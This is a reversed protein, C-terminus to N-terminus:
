HARSCENAWAWSIRHNKRLRFQMEYFASFTQMRVFHIANIHILIFWVVLVDCYYVCKRHKWPKISATLFAWVNFFMLFGSFFDNKENCESANHYMERQQMPWNVTWMSKKLFKNKMSETPFYSVFFFFICGCLICKSNLVNMWVFGDGSMHRTDATRKAPSATHAVRACPPRALVCWVTTTTIKNKKNNMELEQKRKDDTCVAHACQHNGIHQLECRM